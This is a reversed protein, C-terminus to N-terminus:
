PRRPPQISEPAAAGLRALANSAQIAAAPERQQGAVARYLEVAEEVKRETGEGKELAEALHLRGWPNDRYAAARFLKVAEARDVPLGGRGQWYMRGLNDLAYDHLLDAAARFWKVAETDNRPQGIGDRVWTGMSNLAPPYSADASARLLSLAADLDRAMGAGERLMLALEWMAHPHERQAALKFLRAAVADDRAIRGPYRYARGLAVIDGTWGARARVCNRRYLEISIATCDPVAARAEGDMVVDIDRLFQLLDATAQAKVRVDGGLTFPGDSACTRYIYEWEKGPPVQRNTRRDIIGRGARIFFRCNPTHRGRELAIGAVSEKGHYVGPYVALRLKQNGAARMRELYELCPQIPDLDDLESLQFFIPTGTTRANENQTMCAPSIAIHAAFAVDRAQLRDLYSEVAVDLAATAGRSLGVVIIRSRNTWVQNALWRYGAVADAASQSQNVQRQDSSTERVGRPAFSDVVLAAVGYEALLRAYYHETHASVGGSSNIIVAAPVQDDSKPRYLDATIKEDILKGGNPSKSVLAIDHTLTWTESAGGPQSTGLVVTLVALGRHVMNM